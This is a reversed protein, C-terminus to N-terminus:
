YFKVSNKGKAEVNQKNETFVPWDRRRISFFTIKQGITKVSPKRAKPVVLKLVFNESKQTFTRMKATTKTEKTFQLIIYCDLQFSTKCCKFSFM